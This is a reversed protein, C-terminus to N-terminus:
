MGPLWLTQSHTSTRKQGVSSRSAGRTRATPSRVHASVLADEGRLASVAGRFPGLLVGLVLGLVLAAAAAAWVPVGRRPARGEAALRLRIRSELTEPPVAVLGGARLAARLARASRYEAACAACEQVHGETELASEVSLEGDLWAHVRERSLTCTM